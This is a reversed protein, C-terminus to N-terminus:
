VPVRTESRATWSPPDSAPFSDESAEQVVDICGSECYTRSVEWYERPHIAIPEQQRQRTGSRRSPAWLSWLGAGVIGLAIMWPWFSAPLAPQHHTIRTQAFACPQETFTTM